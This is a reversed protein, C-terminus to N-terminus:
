KQNKIQKTKNQKTMCESSHITIDSREHDLINGMPDLDFKSLTDIRIMVLIGRTGIELLDGESSFM